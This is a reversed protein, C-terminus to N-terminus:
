FTSAAAPDTLLFVHSFDYHHITLFHPVLSMTLHDSLQHSLEIVPVWIISPSVQLNYESRGVRVMAGMVCVCGQVPM